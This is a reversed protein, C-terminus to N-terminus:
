AHAMVYENGAIELWCDTCFYITMNINQGGHRYGGATTIYFFPKYLFIDGDCHWCIYAPQRAAKAIAQYGPQQRIREWYQKYREPNIM